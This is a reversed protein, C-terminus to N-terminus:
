RRQYIDSLIDYEEDRNVEVPLLITNDNASAPGQSPLSGAPYIGLINNDKIKSIVDRSALSLSAPMGADDGYGVYVEVKDDKLFAFFKAQILRKEVEELILEKIPGSVPLYSSLEEAPALSLAERIQPLNRNIPTILSQNDFNSLLEALGLPM